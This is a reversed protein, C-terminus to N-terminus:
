ITFDLFAEVEDDVTITPMIMMPTTNTASTMMMTTSPPSEDACPADLLIGLGFELIVNLFRRLLARCELFCSYATDLCRNNNDVVLRGDSFQQDSGQVEGSELYVGGSGTGFGNLNDFFHCGSRM